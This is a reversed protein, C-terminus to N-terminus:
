SAAACVPVLPRSPRALEDFGEAGRDWIQMDLDLVL